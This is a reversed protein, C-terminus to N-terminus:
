KRADHRRLAKHRWRLLNDDATILTAEHIIATAAIFRDAPDSHLGDLDVSQIAIDGTLPLEQVGAGLLLARLEIASTGAQLRNRATLLAIEWFSVASVALAGDRSATEAQHRSQVGLKADETALWVAAHTDLLIV